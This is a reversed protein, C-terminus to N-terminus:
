GNLSPGKWVSGAPDSLGVKTGTRHSTPRVTLSGEAKVSQQIIELWESPVKPAGGNGKLLRGGWDFQGVQCQRGGHNGTHTLTNMCRPYYGM